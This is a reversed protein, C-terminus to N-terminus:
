TEIWLNFVLHLNASSCGVLLLFSHNKGDMVLEMFMIEWYCNCFIEVLHVDFYFLGWVVDNTASLGRKFCILEKSQEFCITRCLPCRLKKKLWADVCEDHFMHKCSQLVRCQDGEKFSVLCIVCDSNLEAGESYYPPKIRSPQEYDERSRRYIYCVKAILLILSTISFTLLGTILNILFFKHHM